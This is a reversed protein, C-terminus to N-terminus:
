LLSKANAIAEATISEGSLLRAIEMIREGEDLRHLTSVVQGDANETKSVLYHANGKAAVQPLHTIAIVQMSEGMSCIMSGMKHAASGSVGTDIEDFIMTPMGTYRAMIAKLSLMIRSLEGGSACKSLEEPSTNNASFLFRVSDTGRAGAEAKRVVVSFVARDLELYRVSKTVEEAFIPAAERRKEGLDHVLLDYESQFAAIKKKLEAAKEHLAETGSVAQSYRERLAILEAESKCSHKRMLGYILSIREDLWALREPSGEIRAFQSEIEASIDEIELRASDIRAALDAASPVFRAARELRRACERLSSDVPPIEDSGPDLCAAADSLDQRIQESNQLAYQEEELEAMEGARLNAESLQTFQAENYDREAEQRSILENTMELESNASALRWWCDTTKDRLEVLSAYHDLLDMQYSAGTIALSKHQSHIDVIYPAIRSLFPLQVPADNVFSRSRGTSYVVRRIVLGGDDWEAEEEGFINKLAQIDGEVSFEAEVVCSAAGGSIVSADARGGQLLSLAGLLISKGAGTQGTIIVLGGPFTIDLSDILVYNEVHLSKLM